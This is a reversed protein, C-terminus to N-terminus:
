SEPVASKRLEEFQRTVEELMGSEKLAGFSGVMAAVGLGIGALFSGWYLFALVKGIGDLTKVKAYGAPCALLRYGLWLNLFPIMLGLVWWGTMGLNQFRKALTALVMLAVLPFVALPLYGALNEPTYKALVPVAFQWGVMLAAPIVSVGMLYGMRGTGAWQSKMLPVPEHIGTSAFADSADISSPRADVPRKEFLGAVEGAPEWDNLGSSWVLDARPDLKGNQALELLYDFGVPGVREGGTSFFWQQQQQAIM